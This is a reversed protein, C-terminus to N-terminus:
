RPGVRELYRAPGCSCQNISVPNGWMQGDPTVIVFVVGKVVGSQGTTLYLLTNSSLTAIDWLYTDSTAEPM